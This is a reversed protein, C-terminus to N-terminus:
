LRKRAITTKTFHALAHHGTNLLALYIGDPLDIISTMMSHYLGNTAVVMM